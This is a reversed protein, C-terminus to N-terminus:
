GNKEEVLATNGEVEELGAEEFGVVKGTVAEAAVVMMLSCGRPVVVMGLATKGALGEEDAAVQQNKGKEASRCGEEVVVM